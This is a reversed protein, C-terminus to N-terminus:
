ERNRFYNLFEPNQLTRTNRVSKRNITDSVAIEAIKGSRAQPIDPVAPIRTPVHRPSANRRIAQRVEAELNDTLVRNPALVMFLVVRM